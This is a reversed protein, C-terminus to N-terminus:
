QHAQSRFLRLVEGEAGAAPRAGRSGAGQDTPGPVRPQQVAQGRRNSASREYHKRRDDADIAKRTNSHIKELDRRHRGESHHGVLIPQGMPILDAIADAARHRAEAEGEAKEARGEAREAREEAREQRAEVKEAFSLREGQQGRDEFGLRTLLDGLYIRARPALARSVWCNRSKSWLCNRKIADRDGEALTLWDAKGGTSIQLKDSELDHVFHRM